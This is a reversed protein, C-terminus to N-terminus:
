HIALQGAKSGQAGAVRGNEYRDTQCRARIVTEPPIVAGQAYHVDIRFPGTEGCAAVDEILTYCPLNSSAGPNSANDCAELVTEVPRAAFPERIESVSCLPQVGDARPDSDALSAGICTGEPPPGIFEGIEDLADALDGTCINTQKHVDFAELFARLRVPPFAGQTDAEDSFCSQAVEPGTTTSEVRIPDISKGLIGAVMVDREPERKLSRLFEVYEDVGHVYPSDQRPQCGPHNGIFRPDSVDCIVGHEFCRFNSLPGLDTRRPDFLARDSASCDDEDSVVIVALRADHRLFGPNLGLAPDLARRMAELQQEFGCGQTGLRAICSFTEALSGEYNRERDGDPGQVDRIFLGDPVPCTEGAPPSSQLRGM